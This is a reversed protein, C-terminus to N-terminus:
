TQLGASVRLICLGVLDVLPNPCPNGPRSRRMQVSLSEVSKDRAGCPNGRNGAAAAASRTRVARTSKPTRAVLELQHEILPTATMSSAYGTPMARIARGSTASSRATSRRGRGAAIIERSRSVLSTAAPRLVARCTPSTPRATCAIRGVRAASRAQAGSSASNKTTGSRARRSASAPPSRASGVTRKKGDTGNM